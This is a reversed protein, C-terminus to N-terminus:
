WIRNMVDLFNLALMESDEKIMKEPMQLVSRGQSTSVSSCATGCACLLFALRAEGPTLGM